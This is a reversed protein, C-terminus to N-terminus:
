VHSAQNTCQQEFIREIHIRTFAPEDRERRKYWKAVVCWIVFGLTATLAISLYYWFGCSPPIDTKKWGLDWAVYIAYGLLINFKKVSQALGILLGRLNNPAQACLFEYIAINFLTTQIAFLINISVNVWLINDTAEEKIDSKFMCPLTQHHIHEITDTILPILGLIIILVAAIGIRKLTSPIWKKIRSYIILEFLPISFCIVTPTSYSLYTAREHCRTLDKNFHSLFKPISSAYSEKPLLFASMCIIILFMRFFSKVDEVEETRFPGGYKSKAFEFRSPKVDECFTFSSRRIPHKHTAAFRLVNFVTKLPNRSEPEIRLWGRLLFDCCLALSSLTLPILVQLTDAEIPLLHTCPSILTGLHSVFDGAFCAWVFWHIFACIEESSADPMQDMGFPIANVLFATYGVTLSIGAVIVGIFILTKRTELCQEDLNVIVLLTLTFAISGIWMLWLGARMVKYRGFYVDALWGAIPCCLAFVAASIARPLHHKYELVAQMLSKTSDWSSLGQASVHITSNYSGKVLFIWMLVLVAGKSRIRRIQSCHQKFSQLPHRYDSDDNSVASLEIM